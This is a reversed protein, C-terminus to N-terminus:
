FFINHSLFNYYSIYYLLYLNWRREPTISKSQIVPLWLSTDRHLIRSMDGKLNGNATPCIHSSAFPKILWSLSSETPKTHWSRTLFTVAKTPRVRQYLHAKVNSGTTWLQSRGIAVVANAMPCSSLLFACDNKTTILWSPKFCDFCDYYTWTKHWINDFWTLDLTYKGQYIMKDDQTHICRQTHLLGLQSTFWQARSVLPLLSDLENRWSDMQLATLSNHEWGDWHGLSRVRGDM